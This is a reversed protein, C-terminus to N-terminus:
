SEKNKVHANDLSEICQKSGFKNFYKVIFVDNFKSYSMTDHFIFTKTYVVFKHSKNEMHM